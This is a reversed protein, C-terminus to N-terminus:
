WFKIAPRNSLNSLRGYFDPYSGIIASITFYIFFITLSIIEANKFSLSKCTKRTIYLSLYYCHHRLDDHLIIYSMM